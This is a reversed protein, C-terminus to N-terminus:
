CRADAKTDTAHRSVYISKLIPILLALAPILLLATVLYKLGGTLMAGVYSYILTAPLQGLGTALIFSGFTLPTLGAFYSVADFPVFPLLRCILVTNRGYRRFYNEVKALAKHGAYKEVVDRGLGRAIYFCIVAGVMSSVWSLLAGQWWGFLAANAFTILFAPIPAIVAQFIMLLFSVAMAYTGYSRIFTLVRQSNASRLVKVVRNLYRQVPPVKFYLILCIVLIGLIFWRLYNKKSKHDKDEM